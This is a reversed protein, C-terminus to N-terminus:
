NSAKSLVPAFQIICIMFFLISFLYNWSVGCEEIVSKAIVMLMKVHKLNGNIGASLYIQHEERFKRMGDWFSSLISYEVHKKFLFTM